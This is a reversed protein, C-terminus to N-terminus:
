RLMQGQLESVGGGDLNLSFALEVILDDPNNVPDIFVHKVDDDYGEFSATVTYMEGNEAPLTILGSFSGDENTYVSDDEEKQTSIEVGAITMWGGNGDEVVVNGIIESPIPDVENEILIQETDSDYGLKSAKINFYTDESVIPATFEDTWGNKDTYKSIGNFKVKANKVPQGDQDTVIGYFNDYESIEDPSWDIELSKCRVAIYITDIPIGNKQVSIYYTTEQSISPAIFIVQGDENTDKTWFYPEFTVTADEIPDGNEDLVTVTFPELELVPNPNATVPGQQQQQQGVAALATGIITANMGVIVLFIVLGTKTKNMNKRM